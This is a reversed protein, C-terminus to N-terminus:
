LAILAVSAACLALGVGQIASIRERLVLYALLVTFAPYMSTVIAAVALGDSSAVLFLQSAGLVLVAGALAMLLPTRSLTGRQPGRWAVWALPLLLLSSVLMEWAVPWTGAQDGARNLGIFLVAFGAGAILAERLGTPGEHDDPVRSVLVTAPLALAIGIWGLASLREGEAIGLVAPISASTVASVPAVVAMRGVALGRYLALTGVASGAGAVSGWAAVQSTSSAGSGLAIGVALVGGAAQVILTVIAVHLRRAALGGLFDSLGYALAAVLSLAVVM